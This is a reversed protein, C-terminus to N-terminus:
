YLRRLTGDYFVQNLEDVVLEEIAVDPGSVVVMVGTDYLVILEANAANVVDCTMDTTTDQFVVWDDNIQGLVNTASGVLLALQTAAVFAFHKIRKM